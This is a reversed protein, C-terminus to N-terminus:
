LVTDGQPGNGGVQRGLTRMRQPGRQKATLDEDADFLRSLVKGDHSLM